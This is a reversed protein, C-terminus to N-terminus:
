RGFTGLYVPTPELMWVPAGLITIRPGAGGTWTLWLPPGGGVLIIRNPWTRGIVLIDNGIGASYLIPLDVLLFHHYKEYITLAIFFPM